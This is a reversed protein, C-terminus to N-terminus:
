RLLGVDPWVCWVAIFDALVPLASELVEKQFSSESLKAIEGM